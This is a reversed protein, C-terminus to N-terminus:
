ESEAPPNTEAAALAARLDRLKAQIMRVNAPGMRLFQREAPSLSELDPDVYTYTVVKPQVEVPTSPVPVALLRDLAQDLRQRFSTGPRAIERHAGVMLPELERFLAVTGATDLSNVVGAIHDYRAWSRPDITIRGGQDEVQFAGSPRLFDLHTKPNAGDAVNDVAAVFRRVLDDNALWKALEPRASLEAALQRIAADSTALTVGRLRESLQSALDPTPPPPAVTATPEPAPLSEEASDGRLLYWGAVALGLIVVVAIVIKVVNSM